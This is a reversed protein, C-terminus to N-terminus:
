SRSHSEQGDLLRRGEITIGGQVMVLDIFEVGRHDRRQIFLRGIMGLREMEELRNVTDQFSRLGEADRRFPEYIIVGEAIQKLLDIFPSSMIRTNYRVEHVRNFVRYGHKRLEGPIHFRGSASTICTRYKKSLHEDISFGHRM